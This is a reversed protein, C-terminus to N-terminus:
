FYLPSYFETLAPSLVSHKPSWSPGQSLALQYSLRIHIWTNSHEYPKRLRGLILLFFFTSQAWERRIDRPTYLLYIDNFFSPFLSSPFNNPVPPSASYSLVQGTICTNTIGTGADVAVEADRHKSLCSELITWLDKHSSSLGPSM